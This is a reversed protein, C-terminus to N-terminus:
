LETRKIELIVHDPRLTVMPNIKPLVGTPKIEFCHIAAQLFIAMEAM